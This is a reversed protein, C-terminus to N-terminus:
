RSRTQSMMFAGHGVRSASRKDAGNIPLDM